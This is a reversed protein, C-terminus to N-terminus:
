PISPNIKRAAKKLKEDSERKYDHSSIYGEYKKFYKKIASNRPKWNKNKTGHMPFLKAHVHDVGFGEFIMGTRGVDALGKDLLKAVKKSAVVLKRLINDPLNFAYSPYHRKTIVVSFGETNPFISLFALHEKDEWIKHCSAEGKAIKCFICDKM